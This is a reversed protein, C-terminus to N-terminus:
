FIRPGVPGSTSPEGIVLSDGDKIDGSVVETFKGDSLGLTVNVPQLGDAAQRWVTKPVAGAVPEAAASPKKAPEYRLAANPVRIVQQREGVTIRVYGTMGPRLELGDNRARIVVTYTVVNQQVAYNNRIQYVAGGFSRGPFADVTFDVKQNEIMSGIDAESVNAEIQMERLDQAIRFLVPTNLSAAVTQGVSVERAVVTGAVPSRISANRRSTTARSVGAQQQDVAAKATLVGSQAEDVDARAIFGKEFLDRNRALKINALALTAQASRLTATAQALDADLTATDIEALLQGVKVPANFDVHIAKITGSIQTGVQVQNVPNLPGSATVIRVIAGRDAQQTLYKAAEAKRDLRGKSFFLGLIIALVVLTLGAAIWIISKFKV